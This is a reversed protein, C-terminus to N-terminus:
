RTKRAQGFAGSRHEGDNLLQDCIGGTTDGTCTPAGRIALSAWLTAIAWLILGLGMTQWSLGALNTPGGAMGYLVSVVGALWFVAIPAACCPACGFRCVALPPAFFTLLTRKAM